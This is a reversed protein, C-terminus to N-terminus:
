SIGEPKHKTKLPMMKEIPAIPAIVRLFTITMKMHMSSMNFATLRANMAEPFANEEISPVTNTKKMMVTAATSAATPRAM